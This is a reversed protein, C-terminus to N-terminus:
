HNRWSTHLIPLTLSAGFKENLRCLGSSEDALIHLYLEASPFLDCITHLEDANGFTVQHVGQEVAWRIYSLIKCPQAYIICSPDVGPSLVFEM